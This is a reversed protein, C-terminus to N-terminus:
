YCRNQSAVHVPAPPHARPFPLDREFKRQARDVEHVRHKGRVIEGTMSVMTVNQMRDMLRVASRILSGVERRFLADKSRISRSDFNFSTPYHSYTDALM